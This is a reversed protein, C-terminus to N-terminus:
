SGSCNGQTEASTTLAECRSGRREAPTELEDAQAQLAALQRALEVAELELQTFTDWAIHAAETAGAVATELVAARAERAAPAEQAEVDRLRAAAGMADGEEVVRAKV